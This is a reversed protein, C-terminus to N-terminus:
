GLPSKRESRNQKKRTQKPHPSMKLNASARSPISITISSAAGSVIALFIESLALTTSAPRSLYVTM